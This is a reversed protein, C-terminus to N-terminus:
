AAGESVNLPTFALIREMSMFAGSQDLFSSISAFKLPALSEVGDSALGTCNWVPWSIRLPAAPRAANEADSSVTRAWPVATIAPRSGSDMVKVMATGSSSMSLSSRRPIPPVVRPAEAVRAAPAAPRAGM